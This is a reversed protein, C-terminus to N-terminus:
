GVKNPKYEHDRKRIVTAKKITTRESGAKPSEPDVRVIEPLVEMGSIVRGFVTHRGNLHPTPVFTIFFQSGGTNKAAEKAMSLSGAFHNRHNEKECECYISYGPGGTGDGNPCGGQAMFGQLVRHFALGDFFGREVLNIFNGVTEPAENEFLEIEIDGASTELKVRPLDDTKAEAERLESERKWLEVYSDVAARFNEGQQSLTGEREALKLYEAATAFDNNGFAAIGLLNYLQPDNSGADVLQKTLEYATAYDDRKIDDTAFQLLLRALERDANPAATFAALALQKLKPMLAKGDAVRQQFRARLDALEKEEGIAYQVQLERLDKLIAKWAALASPYDVPAEEAAATEAAPEQPAPEETDPAPSTTEATPEDQAPEQGWANVSRGTALWVAMLIAFAPVWDRMGPNRELVRRPTTESVQIKELPHSHALRSADRRRNPRRVM